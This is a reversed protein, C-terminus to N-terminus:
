ATQSYEVTLKGHLIEFEVWFGRIKSFGKILIQDNEILFECIDRLFFRHDEPNIPKLIGSEFECASIDRFDSISLVVKQLHIGSNSDDIYAHDVHINITKRLPDVNMELVQAEPFSLCKLDKESVVM